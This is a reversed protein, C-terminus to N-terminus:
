RRFAFSGPGWDRSPADHLHAVWVAGATPAALDHLMLSPPVKAPSRPPESSGRRNIRGAARALRALGVVLTTRLARLSISRYLSAISPPSSAPIGLTVAKDIPNGTISSGSAPFAIVGKPLLNLLEDNRRFTAARGHRDWDPKCVVQQVGNREAWQAAIREVGPRGGHLIVIDAYTVRASDLHADTSPVCCRTLRSASATATSTCPM